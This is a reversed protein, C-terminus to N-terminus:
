DGELSLGNIYETEAQQESEKKHKTDKAMDICLLNPLICLAYEWFFYFCFSSVYSALRATANGIDAVRSSFSNGAMNLYHWGLSYM